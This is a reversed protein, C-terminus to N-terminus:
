KFYKRWAWPKRYGEQYLYDYAYEHSYAENEFCISRYARHWSKLKILLRVFDVLYILYFLIVLCETQQRLHIREHNVIRDTRNGKTIFIFPWLTIGVFKGWIKFPLTIIM